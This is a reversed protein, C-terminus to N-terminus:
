RKVLKSMRRKVVRGKGGGVGRGSWSSRRRNTRAARHLGGGLKSKWGCMWETMKDGRTNGRGGLGGTEGM